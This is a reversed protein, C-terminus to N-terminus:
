PVVETTGFVLAFYRRAKAGASLAALGGEVKVPNKEGRWGRRGAACEEIGLMERSNDRYKLDKVPEVM